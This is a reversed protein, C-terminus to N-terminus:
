EIIIKQSVVQEGNQVKVFYVGKSLDETNIQLNSGKETSAYVLRSFMDIITVQSKREKGNTLTVSFQGNNPNPFVNLQLPNKSGEDVVGMVSGNRPLFWPDIQTENSWTNDTTAVYIACFSLDGNTTLSPESCGLFYFDPHTSTPFIVAERPGFNDFGGLTMTGNLPKRFILGIKEGQVVSDSVYYIWWRGDTQNQWLHPQIEVGTESVTSLIQPQIWTAGSDYSFTYNIQGLSDSAHDDFVLVYTSDDIKEMHPNDEVTDPDCFNLITGPGPPDYTTNRISYIDNEGTNLTYMAIDFMGNEQVGVFGGDSWFGSSLPMPQWAGFPDATTARSAHVIDAHLWSTCAHNTLTTNMGVLDAHIYPAFDPCCMSSDIPNITDWCDLVSDALALYAFFDAPLYFSYLHLGDRTIYLGDEWGDNTCAQLYPANYDQAPYSFNVSNRATAWDPQAYSNAMQLCFIACLFLKSCRLLTKLKM